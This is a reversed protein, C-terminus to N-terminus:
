VHARGIKKERVVILASIASVSNTVEASRIEKTVDKKDLLLHLEGLDYHFEITTTELIKGIETENETAINNNLIKLTIARYMAGTDIFKYGLKEAVKKSTTSKGAGAPGDIAVVINKM